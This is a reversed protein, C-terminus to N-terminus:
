SDRPSPSTYLLCLNLALRESRTAKGVEHLVKKLQDCDMEGLPMFAGGVYFHQTQVNNDGQVTQGNHRIVLLRRPRHVATRKM